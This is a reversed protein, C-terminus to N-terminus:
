SISNDANLKYESTLISSIEPFTFWHPLEGGDNLIKRQQTGSIAAITMGDPVENKPLYLGTEEVYVIEQSFIPTIGIEKAKEAVLEQAAYPPFFSQGNSRKYSPGAHDRGVIFHTAGYNKRVIAHWLAERPGAMRMSLPLLSLIVREPPYYRLLEKYCKVRLQYNIDVPQTVGVVPHLMIGANGETEKLARLTLYFHSRHM